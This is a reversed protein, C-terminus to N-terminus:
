CRRAPIRRPCHWTSLSTRAHTVRDRREDEAGLLSTIVGRLSARAPTQEVFKELQRMLMRGTLDRNVKAADELYM